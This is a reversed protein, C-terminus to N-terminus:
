LCPFLELGGPSLAASLGDVIASPAQALALLFSAYTIAGGNNTTMVLSPALTGTAGASANVKDATTILPDFQFGGYFAHGHAFGTPVTLSYPQQNTAPWGADYGNLMVVDDGAAATLGTVSLMYTEVTPSSSAAATAHTATFTASQNRGSYVLCALEGVDSKNSSVTFTSPISGSAVWSRVAFLSSGNIAVDSLGSIAAFGTPFTLVNGTPTGWLAALLVIDGAAISIGSVTVVISTGGGSSSAQSATGHLAM